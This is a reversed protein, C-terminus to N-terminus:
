AMQLPKFIKERISNMVSNSLAMAGEATTLGSHFGPLHKSVHGTTAAAEGGFTSFCSDWSWSRLHHGAGKVKGSNSNTLDDVRMGQRGEEPGHASFEDRLLDYAHKTCVVPRKPKPPLDRPIARVGGVFNEVKATVSVNTMKMPLLLSGLRPRGRRALLASARVRRLGLIHVLEDVGESQTWFKRGGNAGAGAAADFSVSDGCDRYLSNLSVKKKEEEEQQQKGTAPEDFQVMSGDSRLVIMPLLLSLAARGGCTAKDRHNHARKQSKAAKPRGATGPSLLSCYREHSSRLAEEHAAKEQAWVREAERRLIVTSLPQPNCCCVCNMCALEVQRGSESGSSSLDEVFPPAQAEYHHRDIALREARASAAPPYATVVTM